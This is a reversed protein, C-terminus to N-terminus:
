GMRRVLSGFWTLIEGWLGGVDGLGEWFLERNTKSLPGYVGIFVWIFGDEENKFRCSVLFEGVMSDLLSIFRKDWFTLVGRATSIADLAEWELFRGFGTSTVIFDPYAFWM